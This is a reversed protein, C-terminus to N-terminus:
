AKLYEVLKYLKFDYELIPKSGSNPGDNGFDPVPANGDKFNQYRQKDAFVM